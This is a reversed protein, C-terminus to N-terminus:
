LLQGIACNNSEREGQLKIGNCIDWLNQLLILGMPERIPISPTKTQLRWLLTLFPPNYLLPLAWSFYLYIGAFCIM